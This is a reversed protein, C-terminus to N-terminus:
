YSLVPNFADRTYRNNRWSCRRTAVHPFSLRQFCRLPFGGELHIKGSPGNLVLVHIPTLHFSLLPRLQSMSISREDKKKSLADNLYSQHQRAELGHTCAKTANNSIGVECHLGLAQNTALASPTWGIGDRVRFNLGGADITSCPLSHPLTSRQWGNKLFLRNMKVIFRSKKNEQKEQKNRKSIERGGEIGWSQM